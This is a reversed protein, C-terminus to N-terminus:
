QSRRVGILNAYRRGTLRTAWNPDLPERSGGRLEFLDFGLDNLLEVYDRADRGSAKRIGEPWFESILIMGPSNRITKSAGEIAQLESGQVDIKLLDVSSLSLEAFISDVTRIPVELTHGKTAAESLYIRSDAKNDLNVYLQGTGERDSAACGFVSVQANGEASNAAINRRLYERSESHPEISIVRGGPCLHMALATYLGVNAGVDLFTMSPRCISSFYKIEQREFVRLALAGSLVPDSPNIHITAPGVRVTKPLTALIMANTLRRLPAPRLVTTYIFEALSTM